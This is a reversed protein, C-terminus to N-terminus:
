RRLSSLNQFIMLSLVETVSADWDLLKARSLQDAMVTGKNNKTDAKVETVAKQQPHHRSTPSFKFTAYDGPSGSGGLRLSAGGSSIVGHVLNYVGAIKRWESAVIALQADTLWFLDSM